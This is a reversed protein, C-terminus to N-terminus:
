LEISLRRLVDEIHSSQPNQELGQKLVEKAKSKEGTLWLVEGLHAAIEADVLIEFAKHLYKLAKKNDGRKFALWGVSDIIPANDPLLEYAKEIYEGAEEVRSTQDLLTYGLANLLTANEPVHVLAAKFDQEAQATNRESAFLMARSYLLAASDPFYELGKSYADVARQNLGQRYLADGEIGYLAEQDSPKANERREVIFQLADEFGQKKFLIDAAASIADIYRNGDSVKLYNDLAEDHKDQSKLIEGLNFHAASLHKGREILSRFSLEAEDFQEQDFQLLALNLLVDNNQPRQEHLIRYQELAKTLDIRILQHAYRSRARFNDPQLDVLGKYVEAAAENDGSALLARYLQYIARTNEPELDTAARAENLADEMQELHQYVISLGIRLSVNTQYDDSLSQFRQKLLEINGYNNDVADAAIDEFGAEHGAELLTKAEKFAENFNQTHIYESVLIFRAEHSGPNLEKWLEAMELSEPHRKLIRAIQAARAAIQVDRHHRAQEVYNSLGLDFDGRTLALEATILSYLTDEDFSKSEEITFAPLAKILADSSVPEEQVNQTTNSTCASLVLQSSVLTFASWKKLTEVLSCVAPM